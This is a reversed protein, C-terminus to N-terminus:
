FLYVMYFQFSFFFLITSLIKFYFGSQKCHSWTALSCSHDPIWIYIPWSFFVNSFSDVALLFNQQSLRELLWWKRCGKWHKVQYMAMECIWGPVYLEGKIQRRWTGEGKRESKEGVFVSWKKKCARAQPCGYITSLCNRRALKFGFTLWAHCLYDELLHSTIM